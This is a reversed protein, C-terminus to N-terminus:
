SVDIFGYNNEFKCVNGLYSNLSFSAALIKETLIEWFKPFSVLILAEEILLFGYQAGAVKKFLSNLVPTKRSIKCIKESQM